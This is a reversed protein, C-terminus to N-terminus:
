STGHQDLFKRVFSMAEDKTTIKENLQEDRVADLIQGFFRGPELGLEILDDGTVLPPPDLRERPTQRLLEECHM